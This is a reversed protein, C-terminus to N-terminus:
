KILEIYINQAPFINCLGSSEYARLSAENINVLPEILYNYFYAGKLFTLSKREIKNYSFDFYYNRGHRSDSVFFEFTQVSFKKKHTPDIYNAVSSFHPVQIVLKGGPVLIRHLDKLIDIYEVHELVDKALIEEFTNNEFPLPLIEIDHVVNVGVTDSLDLNVWDERLDYGCGLNLKNM